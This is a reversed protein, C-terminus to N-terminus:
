LTLVINDFAPGTFHEGASLILDHWVDHAAFYIDNAYRM